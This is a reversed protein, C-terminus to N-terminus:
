LHLFVYVLFLFCLIEVIIILWLKCYSSSEVFQELKNNGIKIKENLKDM